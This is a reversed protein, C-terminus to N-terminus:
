KNNTTKEEYQVWRHKAGDICPDESDCYLCAGCEECFDVGCKPTAEETRLLKFGSADYILKKM